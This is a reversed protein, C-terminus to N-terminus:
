IITMIKIFYTIKTHFIYIFKMKPNFSDVTRAMYGQFNDPLTLGHSKSFIDPLYNSFFYADALFRFQTM